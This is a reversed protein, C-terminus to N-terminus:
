CRTLHGESSVEGSPLSDRILGILYWCEVQIKNKKPDHHGVLVIGRLRCDGYDVRGSRLKDGTKREPEAASLLLVRLFM